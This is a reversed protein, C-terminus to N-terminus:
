VSSVRVSEPRVVESSDPLDVLRHEVHRLTRRRVDNQELVNLVNLRREVDVPRRNLPAVQRLRKVRSEAGPQVQQVVTSGVWLANRAVDGVLRAVPLLIITRRADFLLEDVVRVSELVPTLVTSSSVHDKYKIARPAYSCGVKCGYFLEDLVDDSREVNTRIQSADSYDFETGGDATLKVELRVGGFRLNKRSDVGDSIFRTAGVCV